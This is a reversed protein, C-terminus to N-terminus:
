LISGSNFVIRVIISKVQASDKNKGSLGQRINFKICLILSLGM